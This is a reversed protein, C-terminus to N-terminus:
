VSYGANLFTTRLGSRSKFPRPDAHEPPRPGLSSCDCTAGNWGIASPASHHRSAPRLPTLGTNPQAVPSRDLAHFQGLVYSFRKVGVASRLEVQLRAWRRNPICLQVQKGKRVIVREHDCDRLARSPAAPPGEVAPKTGHPVGDTRIGAVGIEVRKKICRIFEHDALVAHRRQRRDLHSTPVLNVVVRLQPASNPRRM